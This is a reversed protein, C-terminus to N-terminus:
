KKSEPVVILKRGNELRCHVGAQNLVNIMDSLMLNRSLKGGFEINNATDDTIQTEIGYWRTLQRMLMTLNNGEFDFFGNKWAITAATNVPQVNMDLNDAFAAQQDPKLLEKQKRQTASVLVAGELLTVKCSKEDPYANINFHTGLVEVIGMSRNERSIMVKFPHKPDPAVELYVEGTIEVVRHDGTFFTPYRISSAANLWIATGDSLVLRFQRGIPTSLTNYEPQEKQNNAFNYGLSGSDFKVDAGHQKAVVGNGTSDLVVTTGDGLTLVAGTKGPAIDQYKALAAPQTHWKKLAWFTGCSLLLAVSAAVWWSPLRFVKGSRKIQEHELDSEDLAKEILSIRRIDDSPREAVMELREHYQQLVAQQEKLSAAKLWEQFAAYEGPSYNGTIYAELFADIQGKTM